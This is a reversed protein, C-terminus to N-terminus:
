MIQTAPNGYVSTNSKVDRIVSSNTGIISNNQITKKPAITASPNVTVLDELKVFGGLFSLANIHCYNGIICDHGIACHSQITVFNGINVDNSIFTYPCIICGVGMEVNEVINSQPHIVNTFHGGKSIIKDIYHKKQIVDGLACIFYDGENVKYDEVSSIIPPYNKFGDLASKNDDLFGLINFNGTQKAIHYVERGFGRAGIIILNKM